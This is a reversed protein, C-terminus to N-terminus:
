KKPDPDVKPPAPRDGQIAPPVAATSPLGYGAPASALRQTIGDDTHKFMGKLAGWGTVGIGTIAAGIGGAIAAITWLPATVTAGLAALTGFGAGVGTIAGGLTKLLGAASFIASKAGEGATNAENELFEVQAREGDLSLQDEAKLDKFGKGLVLFDRGAVKVMYTDYGDQNKDLYGKVESSLFQGRLPVIKADIRKGNVTVNAAM